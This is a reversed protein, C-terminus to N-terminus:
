HRAEHKIHWKGDIRGVIAFEGTVSIARGDSGDNLQINEGMDDLRQLAMKLLDYADRLEAEEATM